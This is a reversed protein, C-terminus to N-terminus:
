IHGGIRLVLDQVCLTQPKVKKNYPKTIKNQYSLWKKTEKNRREKLAEMVYIQDRPVSLRCALALKTSPVMVEVHVDDLRWLGSILVHSSNSNAELYSIDM